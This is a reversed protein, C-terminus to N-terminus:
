TSYCVEGDTPNEPDPVKLDFVANMGYQDEATYWGAPNLARTCLIKPDSILAQIVYCILPNVFTGGQGAQPEFEAAVAPDFIDKFPKTETGPVLWQLFNVASCTSNHPIIYVFRTIIPFESCLM